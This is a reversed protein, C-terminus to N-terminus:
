VLGKLLVDSVKLSLALYSDISKRMRDELQTAREACFKNVPQGTRFRVRIRIIIDTKM